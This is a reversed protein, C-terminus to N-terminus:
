ARPTHRFPLKTYRAKEVEIILAGRGKYYSHSVSVAQPTSTRFRTWSRSVRGCRGRIPVEEYPDNLDVVSLALPDRRPKRVKLSSEGSSFVIKDDGVGIWVPMANPSGDPM